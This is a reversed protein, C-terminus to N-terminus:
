EARIGLDKILKGLREVEMANLKQLTEPSGGMSSTSGLAAMRDIVEPMKLIESLHRNLAQVVAPPMGKPGFIGYWADIDVGKYGLEYLSPVNPALRTRERSTVALAVIKGSPLYSRISSLDSYAFPIHGGLMDAVAPANGKYPVHVLNAGTEKNVLEGVIHLISGAGASGYGMPKTKAAAVAEKFTKIGTSADTVLFVPTRGLEIVPTFDNLPDYGGNAGVNLVFQAFALSNAALLLTYGDAPAKAVFRNGLIGSAGPRNEVVVPQGLRPALKEALLRALVDMGGGASFPVTISIPKAPYTQAWIPSTGALSAALLLARRTSNM